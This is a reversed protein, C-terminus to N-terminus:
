QFVRFTSLTKFHVNIVARLLLSCYNVVQSVQVTTESSSEIRLCNGLGSPLQYQFSLVVCSLFPLYSRPCIMTVPRFWLRPIKLGVHAEVRKTLLLIMKDNKFFPLICVFCTQFESNRSSFTAGFGYM